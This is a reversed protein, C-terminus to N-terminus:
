KTVNPHDLKRWVEVEQSFSKRLAVIEATIHHGDEGWDLVKVIHARKIVPIFVVQREYAFIM